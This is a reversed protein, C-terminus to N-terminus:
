FRKAIVETLHKREHARISGFLRFVRWVFKNPLKVNKGVHRKGMWYLVPSDHCFDGEIYVNTHDIPLKNYENRYIKGDPPPSNFTICSCPKQLLEATYRANRTAVAGGLSHGLHILEYNGSLAHKKIYPHLALSADEFGESLRCNNNLWDESDDSGRVSFWIAGCYRHITMVHNETNVVELIYAGDPIFTTVKNDIYANDAFAWATKIINIETNM